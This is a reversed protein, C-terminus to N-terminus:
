LVQWSRSADLRRERNPLNAPPQAPIGVGAWQARSTEVDEVGQEERLRAAAGETGGCREKRKGKLAQGDGSFPVVKRHAKGEQPKRGGQRAEVAVEPVLPCSGPGGARRSVHRFDWFCEFRGRIATASETGTRRPEVLERRTRKAVQATGERGPAPRKLPNSGGAVDGDRSGRRRSALVSVRKPKMRELTECSHGRRSGGAAEKRASSGDGGDRGPTRDLVLGEGGENLKAQPKALGHQAEFNQGVM